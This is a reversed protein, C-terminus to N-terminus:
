DQKKSIVKRITFGGVTDGKALPKPKPAGMIQALIEEETMSENPEVKQEELKPDSHAKERM